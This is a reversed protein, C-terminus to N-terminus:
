KINLVEDKVLSIANIFENHSEKRMSDIKNDLSEKNLFDVNVAFTAGIVNENFMGVATITSEYNEEIRSTSINGSIKENNSLNTLMYPINSYDEKNVIVQLEYDRCTVTVEHNQEKNKYVNLGLVLDLDELYSISYDQSNTKIRNIAIRKNKIKENNAIAEIVTNVVEGEENYSFTVTIESYNEAIKSIENKLSNLLDSADNEVSLDEALIEEIATIYKEDKEVYSIFKNMTEELTKNTLKLSVKQIEMAVDDVTVNSKIISVNDKNISKDIYKFIPKLDAQKDAAYLRANALLFRNVGELKYTYARGDTFSGLNITAQGNKTKGLVELGNIDNSSDTLSFSTSDTGPIYRFDLSFINDNLYKIFDTQVTDVSKKVQVASKLKADIAKVKTQKKSIQKSVSTAEYKLAEMFQEKPSVVKSKVIVMGLVVIITAAVIVLTISSMGKKIM